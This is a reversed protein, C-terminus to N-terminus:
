GSGDCPEATPRGPNWMFYCAVLQRRGEFADLLTLARNPELLELSADVEV